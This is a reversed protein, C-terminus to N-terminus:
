QAVNGDELGNAAADFCKRYWPLLKVNDHAVRIVTLGTFIGLANAM